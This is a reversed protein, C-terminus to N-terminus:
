MLTSSEVLIPNYPSKKYKTNKKDGGAERVIKKIKGSM